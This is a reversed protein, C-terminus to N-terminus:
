PIVLYSSTVKASMIKKRIIEETQYIRLEVSEMTTSNELDLM